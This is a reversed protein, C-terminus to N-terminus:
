NIIYNYEEVTLVLPTYPGEGIAELTRVFARLHNESARRLHDYMQDLYPVATDQLADNLDNIDTEEIKAGARLANGLSTSGSTVLATYANGLEVNSFQGSVKGSTPDALGHLQLAQRVMDSHHQEANRINEFINIQYQNFFQEYVDHALKEEEVMYLLEATEAQTLAVPTVNVLINGGMRNGNSQGGTGTGGAGVGSGNGGGNQQQRENNKNGKRLNRQGAVYM